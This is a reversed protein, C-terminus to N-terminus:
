QLKARQKRSTRSPRTPESLNNPDVRPGQCAAQIQNQEASNARQLANPRSVPGPVSCWM